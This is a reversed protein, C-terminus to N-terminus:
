WRVIYKQFPTSLVIFGDNELLKVVEPDTDCWNVELENPNIELGCNAREDNNTLHKEIRNVIEKYRRNIREQKLIPVRRNYLQQAAETRARARDAFKTCQKSDVVVELGNETLM